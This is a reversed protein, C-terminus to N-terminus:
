PQGDVQLKYDTPAGLLQDFAFRGDATGTLTMMVEANDNKVWLLRVPNQPTPANGDDLVSGAISFGNGSSISVRIRKSSTAGMQDTASILLVYTGAMPVSLTPTLSASDSLIAPAVSEERILTWLIVPPQGSDDSVSAQLSLLSQDSSIDSAVITPPQNSWTVVVSKTSRAGSSAISELVFTTMPPTVTVTKNWSGNSQVTVNQGDVLLQTGTIPQVVGSLVIQKPIMLPPQQEASYISILCCWFCACCPLKFIWM